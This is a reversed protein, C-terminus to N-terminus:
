PNSHELTGLLRNLRMRAEKNSPDLSLAKRYADIAKGNNGNIEEIRGIGVYPASYEPWIITAAKFEEEADHFRKLKAYAVGLNYYLTANKPEIKIAMKLYKIAEESRGIRFYVIGLMQYPDFYSPNLEIARKYESIAKDYEKSRYYNTGMGFHVFPSDPAKKLADSWFTYRDRWVRNREFTVISSMVSFMVMVSVLIVVLNKSYRKKILGNAITGTSLAIGVSPLYARHENAILTLPLITEPLLAIFFWFIGFTFLPYRKKQWIAYIVMFLILLSATVVGYEFFSSAVKIDHIYSLGYPIFIERLYLVMVKLQTLINSYIGRAMGRGEIITAKSIKIVARGLLHSRLLLYGASVLWFPLHYRAIDNFSARLRMRFGDTKYADAKAEKSLLHEYLILILPLTIAIEKTLLSLIYMALSLLMYGTKKKMRHYIYFLFSLLYFTTVLLVSRSSIYVVAQSNVPLLGFFLATWFPILGELFIRGLMYVLIANIMHFFINTLRFGRVDLGTIAYNIAYSTVLVPRYMRMYPLSSFTSPNSFFHPINSLARISRNNVISHFDDAHFSNNISNSYLFGLLLCLLVMQFITGKKEVRILNMKFLLPAM